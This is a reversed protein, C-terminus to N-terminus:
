PKEEKAPEVRVPSEIVKAVEAIAERKDDPWQVRSGRNLISDAAYGTKLGSLLVIGWGVFVGAETTFLGSGIEAALETAMAMAAGISRWLNDRFFYDIPSGSIDGSSRGRIYHGIMGIVGGLLLMYMLQAEMTSPLAALFHWAPEPATIAKAQAITPADAINM